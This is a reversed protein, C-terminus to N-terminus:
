IRFCDISFFIDNRRSFLPSLTVIAYHTIVLSFILSWVLDHLSAFKLHLELLSLLVDESVSNFIVRFGVYAMEPAM